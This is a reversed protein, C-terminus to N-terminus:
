GEGPKATVPNEGPRLTDRARVSGDDDREARVTYGLAVLRETEALVEAATHDGCVLLIDCDYERPDRLKRDLESLYLAFGIANRDGGSQGGSKTVLGDYRGGSLVSKPVDRVYGKFVIGNYYDLTNVVSFDLSIYKELGIASLAKHLDTLERLALLMEGSLCLSQLREAGTIIDGHIEALTLLGREREASLAYRRALSSIESRSKHALASLLEEGARNIGLASLLAGIFGMHSVNLRYEGGVRALSKLALAIVEAEAYGSPVGIYEVGVQSIEAYEGGREARFVNEAYYLKKPTDSGAVNKVISLTVDPKLAMLRGSSDTFTIIGESRLFSKNRMYIDYPEFKDMRYRKYAYSEYLACLRLRAQERAPLLRASNDL